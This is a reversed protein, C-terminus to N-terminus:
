AGTRKNWAATILMAIVNFVFAVGAWEAFGVIAHAVLSGRYKRKITKIVRKVKNM